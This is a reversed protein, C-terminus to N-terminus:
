IACFGAAPGSHHSERTVDTGPSRVLLGANKTRSRVAVMWLLLLLLLLLVM